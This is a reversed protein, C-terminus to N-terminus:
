FGMGGPNAFIIQVAVKNESLAAVNVCTYHSNGCESQTAFCLEHTWM